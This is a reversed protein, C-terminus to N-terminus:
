VRIVVGSRELNLDEDKNEELMRTLHTHIVESLQSKNLKGSPDMTDVAKDGDSNYLHITIVYSRLKNLIKYRKKPNQWDGKYEAKMEDNIFTNASVKMYGQYPKSM